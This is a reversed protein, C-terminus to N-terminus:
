LYRFSRASRTFAEDYASRLKPLTTYTIVTSKGDHILLYQLLTVVPSTATYRAQYRLQAAKGAPLTVIQSAVKGVVIGSTELQAVSADKLLQLDGGSPVVIVNVNSAYHSKVAASGADVLILKVAKSKKALEVYDRLSPIEKAKALVEPSLRTVDIWSGPAAVSFGGGTVRHTKWGDTRASAPAVAVVLM